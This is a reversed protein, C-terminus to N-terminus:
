PGRKPGVHFPRLIDRIEDDTIPADDRQRTIQILLMGELDDPTLDVFAMSPLKNKADKDMWRTIFEALEVKMRLVHLERGQVEVTGSKMDEFRGVGFSQPFQPHEADFLRKRGEAGDRGKHLQIQEQFGRSDEFTYQEGVVQFGFKPKMEQPWQDYPLIKALAQKQLEPDTAKKVFHYGLGLAVIGFLVALLCGGGCFWLWTPIGRKKPPGAEEVSWATEAM